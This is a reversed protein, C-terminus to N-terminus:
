IHILSLRMVEAIGWIALPYNLAILPMQYRKFHWFATDLTSIVAIGLLLWAIIMLAIFIGLVSSILKSDFMDMLSGLDSFARSSQIATNTMRTEVNQILNERSSTDYAVVNNAWTYELYDFFNRIKAMVGAPQNSGPGTDRGSTPDFTKWGSPTLVEM